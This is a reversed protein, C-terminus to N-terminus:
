QEGGLLHSAVTEVASGWEETDGTDVEMARCTGLLSVSDFVTKVRKRSMDARGEKVEGQAALRHYTVMPDAYLHVLLLDSVLALESLFGVRGLRGGEGLLYDPREDESMGKVWECAVPNIVKDLGDTGPYEARLVGLYMGNEGLRHGRIRRMRHSDKGGGPLRAFDRARGIEVDLSELVAWAFTSKGVGSGGVVYASRM